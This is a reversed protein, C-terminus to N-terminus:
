PFLFGATMELYGDGQYGPFAERVAAVFEDKAKCTQALNKVKKLYGLKKEM